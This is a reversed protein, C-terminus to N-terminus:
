KSLTQPTATWALSQCSPLMETSGDSMKRYQPWNQSPDVMTAIHGHSRRPFANISGLGILCEPNSVCPYSCPKWSYDNFLVGEVRSTVVTEELSWRLLSCHLSFEAEEPLFFSMGSSVLVAKPLPLTTVQFYVQCFAWKLTMQSNFVTISCTAWVGTVFTWGDLTVCSVFLWEWM